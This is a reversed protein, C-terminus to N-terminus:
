VHEPFADIMHLILLTICDDKNATNQLHVCVCIGGYVIPGPISGKRHPIQLCGTEM